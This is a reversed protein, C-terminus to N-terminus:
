RQKSAHRKLLTWSLLGLTFAVIFRITLLTWANAELVLQLYSAVMPLAAYTGITVYIPLAAAKDVDTRSRLWLVAVLALHLILSINSSIGMQIYEWSFEMGRAGIWLPILYGILSEAATWGLGVALIRTELSFKSLNATYQLTLYLGVVEILNSLTQLCEQVLSFDGTTGSPIVTAVVFIKVAQTGAFWLGSSICARLANEESLRTSRYIVYFPGFTLLLCNLFLHWM